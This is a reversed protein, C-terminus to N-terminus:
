ISSETIVENGLESSSEYGEPMELLTIATVDDRWERSIAIPHCILGNMTVLQLPTIDFTHSQAELEYTRRSKDWYYAVRNALHQEPIQDIGNYPAKELYNGDADMLLGYGYEMDNDSAFICDANWNSDYKKGNKASYEKSENRDRTMKRTGAATTIIKDRSYNVSFDAIQFTGPDIRTWDEDVAGMFDVYLHGKIEDNVQIRSSNYFVMNQAAIKYGVKLIPAFKALVYVETMTDGWTTHVVGGAESWQLWKATARTHGIGIRMKFSRINEPDDGGLFKEAGQYVTGRLEISGGSFGTEYVSELSVCPTGNDYRKILIMDSTESDETSDEEYIQRRCFGGAGTDTTGNLVQSTFSSIEPTTFYGVKASEGDQVWTYGGADMTDRVSKPAFSIIETQKNAEAKVTAKSHGRVISINNNTSAFSGTFSIPAAPSEITGATDDGGALAALAAPTLRLYDQEGQDDACLLLVKQQYTRATWGWYKCVDEMVQAITYKATIGDDNITLFNRWDIQSLLWERADAGGQVVFETFTLQPVQSFIHQIIYAFNRIVTEDTKISTGGLASLACQIPFERQQPNGYLEGSFTQAQMFGQWDVITTNGEVHTLTVPRSTDTAPILDHWDFPTIGDLAFGDDVIRLYGSQTRTPTFQDENNDEQTSFPQAGGKLPIATGTGGGITVTYVTHSRLSM